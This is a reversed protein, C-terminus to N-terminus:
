AHLPLRRKQAFIQFLALSLAVSAGLFWTAYGWLQIRTLGLALVDSLLIVTAGHALTVALLNTGILRLTLFFVGVGAAIMAASAGDPLHFIFCSLVSIVCIAATDSHFAKIAAERFFLEEALAFLLVNGALLRLLTEVPLPMYSLQGKALGYAVPVLWLLPALALGLATRRWTWNLRAAGYLAHHPRRLLFVVDGRLIVLAILVLAGYSVASVESPTLGFVGHRLTECLGVYFFFLVAFAIHM